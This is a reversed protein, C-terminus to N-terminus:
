SNNYVSTEAGFDSAMKLTFFLSQYQSPRKLLEDVMKVSDGDEGNRGM